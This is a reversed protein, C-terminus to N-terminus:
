TTNGRGSLSERESKHGESRIIEAFAIFSKKDLSEKGAECFRNIRVAIGLTKTKLLLIM